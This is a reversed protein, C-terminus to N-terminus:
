FEEWEDGTTATAPTASRSPAVPAKAVGLANERPRPKGGANSGKAALAAQALRAGEIREEVTLQFTGVARVLQEAQSRMGAAASASQQVASANQQVV